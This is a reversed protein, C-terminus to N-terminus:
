RDHAASGNEWPDGAMLSAWADIDYTDPACTIFTPNWSPQPVTSKQTQDV